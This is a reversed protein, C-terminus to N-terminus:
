APYSHLQTNKISLCRSIKTMYHRDDSSVTAYYCLYKEQFFALSQAKNREDLEVFPDDLLVMAGDPLGCAELLLAMLRNIGRSYFQDVRQGDICISMDDRQPGVSQSMPNTSQRVADCYVAEYEGSESLKAMEYRVSVQRGDFWNLTHNYAELRAQLTTIMAVREQIIQHALTALKPDYLASFGPGQHKILANKQKLLRQYQLMLKAYQPASLGIVRDLFQRRYAPSDQFFRLADASIYGVPYKPRLRALQTAKKENEFVLKEGQDTLKIVRKEGSHYKAGIIADPHGHQVCHAVTARHQSSHFNGLWYLTDLLSTKGQNNDAVICLHQTPDLELLVEDFIRFHKIWLTTLM